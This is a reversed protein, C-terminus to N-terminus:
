PARASRRIIPVVDPRYFTLEGDPDGEVRYGGEHLLDHHHGCVLILNDMDTRGGRSWHRLHHAALWQDRDCEPFRCGGDRHRLLRMLWHPIVRTTRGVGIPRGDEAEVIMQVRADCALRRVTESALMVGNELEGMGHAAALEKESVHVVVTARDTDSQSGLWTSCVETLADARLARVAESAGSAVTQEAIRDLTKEVVAGQDYPLRGWIRLTGTDRDWRRKVYRENQIKEAEARDVRRRRRAEDELASPTWGPAENALQGDVEPTAFSALPRVQDCSLSGDEFATRIKPLPELDRATEVWERATRDSVACLFRLWHPMSHAGDARWAEQRDFEAIDVLLQSVEHNIREIRSRIRDEIELAGDPGPAVAYLLHV